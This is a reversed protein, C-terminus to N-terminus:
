HLISPILSVSSSLNNHQESQQKPKHFISKRRRLSPFPKNPTKNPKPPDRPPSNHYRFPSVLKKGRVVAESSM